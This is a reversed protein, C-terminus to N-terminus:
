YPNAWVQLHHLLIKLGSGFSRGVGNTVLFIFFLGSPSFGALSIGILVMMVQAMFLIM